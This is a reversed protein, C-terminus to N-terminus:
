DEYYAICSFTYGGSGRQVYDGAAGSGQCHIYGFSINFTASSNASISTSPSSTFHAWGFEYSKAPYVSSVSCAIRVSKSSNSTVTITITGGSRSASATLCGAFNISSYASSISSNKSVIVLGISKGTVKAWAVSGASSAYGANGANTSYYVRGIDSATCAATPKTTSWSGVNWKFRDNYASFHYIRPTSWTSCNNTYFDYINNATKVAIVSAYDHSKVIWTLQAISLESATQGSRFHYELIGKYDSYEGGSFFIYGAANCWASANFTITAFKCWVTNYSNSASSPLSVSNLSLTYGSYGAYDANLNAVVTSSSM